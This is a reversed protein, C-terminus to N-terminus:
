QGDSTQCMACVEALRGPTVYQNLENEEEETTESLGAPSARTTGGVIGAALGGGVVMGGTTAAMTGGAGLGVAGISQLTAVTGGAAIGGGAAVAEASMMGAAASGAVIGASSFGMASVVGVVAFPATIVSVTGLSIAMRFPIDGVVGPLVPEIYLRNLQAVASDEDPTKLVVEHSVTCALLKDEQFFCFSGSTSYEMNWMSKDSPTLTKQTVLNGDQDIALFAKRRSKQITVCGHQDRFQILWKEDKKRADKLCLDLNSNCSLREDHPHQKMKLHGTEGTILRTGVRDRDQLANLSKLLNKARKQEPRM